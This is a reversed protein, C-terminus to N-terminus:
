GAALFVRPGDRPGPSPAPAHAPSRPVAPAFPPAGPLARTHAARQRYATVNLARPSASETLTAFPLSGPEDSHGTVRNAACTSRSPRVTPTTSGIIGSWFRM